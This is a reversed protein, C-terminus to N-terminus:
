NLLNNLKKLSKYKMKFIIFNLDITLLTISIRRKNEKNIM